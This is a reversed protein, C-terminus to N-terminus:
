LGYKTPNGEVIQEIGVSAAGDRVAETFPAVEKGNLIKLEDGLRALAEEPSVWEMASPLDFSIRSGLKASNIVESLTFTTAISANAKARHLASRTTM